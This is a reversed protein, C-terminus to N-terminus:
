SHSLIWTAVEELLPMMYFKSVNLFVKVRGIYDPPSLMTMYQGSCLPCFDTLNEAKMTKCKQCKLDQLQYATVLKRLMDLLRQEISIRDYEEKCEPCRWAIRTKSSTKRIESSKGHSSENGILLDLDRCLDIDRCYNCYECILQSLKLSECPNRFVAEPAFELVGILRLLDLRLFRVEREIVPDLALVACLSKIFELTPNSFKLHSGPMVPFSARYKDEETEHIGTLTRELDPILALLRRKLVVGLLNRQFQEVKAVPSNAPLRSNANQPDMPPMLINQLPIKGGHTNSGYVNSKFRHTELIYQSIYIEFQTQIAPPLYDKINWQLSIETMTNGLPGLNEDNHELTDNNHDYDEEIQKRVIGGYNAQDMWLLHEWYRIIDIHLLRFLPKELIARVVYNGYSIANVIHNKTTSIVIKSFDAFIITSGLRKFESVLQMFVKKMLVHLLSCLAPDYLKSDPNTFWRYFHDTLTAAITSKQNAAEITWSQVLKKLITFTQPSILNDDLSNLTNVNGKLHDDLSHASAEFGTSGTVGELENLVNSSLLTSHALREVALEISINGYAGFTNIEPPLFEEIGYRNDDEERGGLDPKGSLSLWLIMDLKHLRRAFALDSLFVPFDNEINCFPVDAYRALQLRHVLWGDVHFLRKIMRRCAIRQWDLAPLSNDKKNSPLTVIPFENLSPANFSLTQVSLPSQIVLVTPGCRQTQYSSLSRQLIRMADQQTPAVSVEVTISDSYKFINGNSQVDSFDAGGTQSPQSFAVDRTAKHERYLKEVNPIQNSQASDVAIIHATSIASFFIGFVHRSETMCHYLYICHFESNECYPRRTMPEHKLDDLDFGDDLGKGKRVRDREVSAICGLKLLARFLLPVQTEYVGEITPHSMFSSFAKVHEQYFPEPMKFEYLNLCQHSRPLTRMCRTMFPRVAESQEISDTVRSNAYFIRPVFLKLSHLSGGVLVWLKFEGPNDTETIQLIQWPNLFVSEAQKRFFSSVGNGQKELTRHLADGFLQRRRQREKIRIQWKKKQHKLWTPYSEYISVNKETADDLEEQGEADGGGGGGHDDNDDEGDARDRKQKEMRQIKGEGTMLSDNRDKQSNATRVRKTITPNVSQKKLEIDKRRSGFDEVDDLYDNMPLDSDNISKVPAKQFMDTIRHQKFKEDGAMVRKRLWDPHRVRPVPNRVSQLAAPITILKRIVSAFRDIYYNWDLITRIDFDQMSNDRLWKRLFHKKVGEEASFIAVPIARETVPAGSPKTSIIFKCALGKDKVMEDGLFEALRRATSISTSKLSGYDELSKSMSRNECVLEFLEDDELDIAKSYLVDLWQNAVKAVAAYCDELTSGELFVKFIQSQFIKILKLEGRRKVEFGKLEALTGDDNFVAYRKKLLKDEELSAPLIMARYPGDVEFFISNESHTEYQLTSADVLDQYQHNTFKDHVLHNLMVCPYSIPYKKGGALEFCFNEPFTAPFICWIGDTDLELPRGIQEILQRALQIISAGTLCVIGAMEMSYWRSGKRMVYGYFSNLICKHALQLSDFVVQMKKAEDIAQLDGDQIANELKKKWTKLLGKYEYRRDRFNRVTNIYFPNERQCIISTKSVIKTEHTKAYVKRSYDSVRKKIASAQEAPPLDSFSRPPDGERRGPFKEQELQNKIMNYENMKAPFYEGRWSWTMRRQCNSEPRNFDCTACVSEDVMSDPQLRNTLIINPYMAAVDLHYIIPVEERNPTDRLEILNAIIQNRVKFITPFGM